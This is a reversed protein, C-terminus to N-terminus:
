FVRGYKYQILHVFIYNLSSKWNMISYLISQRVDFQFSFVKSFTSKLVGHQINSVCIQSFDNEHIIMNALTMEWKMESIVIFLYSSILHMYVTGIWTICHRRICISLPPRSEDSTKVLLFFLFSIITIGLKAFFLQPSPSLGGGGTGVGIYYVGTKFASM